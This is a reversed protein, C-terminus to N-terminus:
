DKAAAWMLRDTSHPANEFAEKFTNLARELDESLSYTLVSRREILPLFDFDPENGSKSLTRAFCIMSVFWENGGKPFQNIAKECQEGFWNR